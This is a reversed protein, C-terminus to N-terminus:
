ITERVEVVQRATFTEYGVIYDFDVVFVGSEDPQWLCYLTQEQIGAVGSVVVSEDSTDYVTYNAGSITVPVGSASSVIAYAYRKEGITWPKM